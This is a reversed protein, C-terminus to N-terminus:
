RDAHGSPIGAGAAPAAAGHGAASGNGAPGPSVTGGAAAAAAPTGIGPGTGNPSGGSKAAHASWSRLPIEPILLGAVLLVAGVPVAITYVLRTAQTVADLVIANLDPPLARIRAPTSLLEDIDVNSGAPLRRELVSDMRSALAAGYAGVGITQGLNRAFTLTATGAGLDAIPLANQTVTTTIPMFFGMGIGLLAMWPLLTEWTTDQNVRTLGILGIVLLTPGLVLFIKYRGLRAMMNGAFVSGVTLMIMMPAMTLGSSTASVEGVVQLFLPLFSGAAMMAGGGALSSILALAVVRNRFLRLPIIPEQARREQVVFGVVAVLCLLSLGVITPSTWSFQDGGWIMVLILSSVATILLGAGEVDIRRRVRVSPLRLVRSVVLLAV